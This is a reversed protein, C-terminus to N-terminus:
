GNILVEIKGKKKLGSIEFGLQQYKELVLIVEKSIREGPVILPIGPPYLYAFEGSISGESERWGILRRRVGAPDGHGQRTGSKAAAITCVQELVPLRPILEGPMTKHLGKDIESLATVLREMGEKRDAISTMGLVYSGAYMEMQLHYDELLKHYLERSSLDTNKVSIILKSRDFDVGAAADTATLRLHQLGQLRSRTNELLAAYQSFLELCKNELLSICIDMSSMLVYSPSSTQFIQLYFKIRERDALNGNVHILGTQTLAPLTKHLSQIVVDAGLSNASQPFYPHFGFHAGHAEDVILPLGKEHVIAAIRGVDSVVGDYTPSTIIVAAIDPEQRLAGAVDSVSIEANLEADKHYQPYLYVPILENLYIAHYVSKHCNRAVLIKSGKNTCGMIASLIGATSGNVLLATDDSQFIESARNEIERLVGGAHHLDDFGDIETIDLHYPLGTGTILTNRKGGPMHFGYYDSKSYSILQDYLSSMKNAKGTTNNWSSPSTSTGGRQKRATVVMNTYELLDTPLHCCRIVKGSNEFHARPPRVGALNPIRELITAIRGDMNM